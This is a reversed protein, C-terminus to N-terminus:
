FEADYNAPSSNRSVLFLSSDDRAHDLASCHRVDRQTAIGATNPWEAFSSYSAHIRLRPLAPRHNSLFYVKSFVGAMGRVSECTFARLQFSCAGRDRHLVWMTEFTTSYHTPASEDPKRM